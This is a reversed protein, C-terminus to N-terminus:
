FIYGLFFNIKFKGILFYRLYNFNVLRNNKGYAEEILANIFPNFPIWNSSYNEYEWQINKNTTATSKMFRTLNKTKDECYSIILKNLTERIESVDDKYGHM